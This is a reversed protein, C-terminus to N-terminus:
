DGGLLMEREIQMRDLIRRLFAQYEIPFNRIRVLGADASYRAFFEMSDVRLSNADNLFFDVMAKGSIRLNEEYFQRDQSELHRALIKQLDNLLRCASSYDRAVGQIQFLCFELLQQSKKLHGCRRWADRCDGDNM